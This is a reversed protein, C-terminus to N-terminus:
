SCLHCYYLLKSTCVWCYLYSLWSTAFKEPPLIPLDRLEGAITNALPNSSGGFVLDITKPIELCSAALDSSARLQAILPALSAGNLLYNPNQQKVSFLPLRLWAPAELLTELLTSPVVLTTSRRATLTSSWSSLSPAACPHVLSGSSDVADLRAELQRIKQELSAIHEQTRLRKRRQSEKDRERKREAAEQLREKSDM